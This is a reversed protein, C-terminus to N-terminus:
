CGWSERMTCHGHWLHSVTVQSAVVPPIQGMHQANRVTSSYKYQQAGRPLTPSSPVRASVTQTGINVAIPIPIDTLLFGNFM